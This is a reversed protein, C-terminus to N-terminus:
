KERREIREQTGGGQKVSENIFVVLGLLFNFIIIVLTLCGRFMARLM